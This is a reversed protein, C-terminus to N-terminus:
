FEALSRFAAARRFFHRVTMIEMMIDRGTGGVRVLLPLTIM